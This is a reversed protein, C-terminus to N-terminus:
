AFSLLLPSNIIFCLVALMIAVMMNIIVNAILGMETTCAALV